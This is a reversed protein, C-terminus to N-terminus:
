LPQPVNKSAGRKFFSIVLQMRKQLRNAPCFHAAVTRNVHPPKAFYRSLDDMGNQTANAWGSRDPGTKTTALEKNM